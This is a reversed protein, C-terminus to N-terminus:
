GGFGSLLVGALLGVSIGLILYAMNKWKLASLAWVARESVTRESLTM